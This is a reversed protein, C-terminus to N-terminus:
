GTFFADPYRSRAYSIFISLRLMYKALNEPLVESLKRIALIKIQLM